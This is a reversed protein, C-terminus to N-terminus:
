GCMQEEEYVNACCFPVAQRWETLERQPTGAGQFTTFGQVLSGWCRKSLPCWLTLLSRKWPTQRKILVTLEKGKVFM